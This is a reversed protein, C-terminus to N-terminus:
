RLPRVDWRPRWARLRGSGPLWNVSRSSRNDTGSALPGVTPISFPLFTLGMRVNV